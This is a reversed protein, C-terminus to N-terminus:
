AFLTEGYLDRVDVHRGTASAEFARLLLVTARYGDVHTSGPKTRRRLCDLFEESERVFGDEAAVIFTHPQEGDHYSLRKLRDDLQVTRRGDMLEFLFKDTLAPQGFDGVTVSGLAGNEFLITMTLADTISLDSHHLNRAEASIRVPKANALWILLDVAHCGQSLVNGGGKLPDNAWIDDPWRRDMIQARLVLPSSVLVSAKQVLAYHRMKFGTMCIAGLREVSECIARSEHETLAMPKELFIDLGAEAAAIAISAHTDHHTCIYVADLDASWIEELSRASRGQYQTALRHASEEHVDYYVRAPTGLEALCQAHTAGISGCGIIAIKPSM